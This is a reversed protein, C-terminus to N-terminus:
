TSGSSASCQLWENLPKDLNLALGEAWGAQEYRMQPLNGRGEAPHRRHRTCCLRTLDRAWPSPRSTGNSVRLGSSELTWLAEAQCSRPRVSSPWPGEVFWKATPPDRCCPEHGPFLSAQESELTTISLATRSLSISSNILRNAFNDIEHLFLYFLVFVGTITTQHNSQCHQRKRLGGLM